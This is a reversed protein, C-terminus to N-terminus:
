RRRKVTRKVRKTVRPKVRRASLRKAVTPKRAPTKHEGNNTSKGQLAANDELTLSVIFERLLEAAHAVDDLQLTEVSTHMYRLPIEVLGTPIGEGAVQMMWANTQTDGGYVTLQHPIAERTAAQQLKEFVFPHVNAGRAICPGGGLISLEESTLNPQQAHTVDLCVAINPRIKFASTSAGLYVPGDEENVNAVVYVDWAHKVNQLQRMVELLAVLSSRDDFAKGAYFNNQLPVVARDPTIFDGISVLERVRADSLGVDIFLEQLPIASKRQDPPIVHPPRMGIVGQLTKRGHVLVNQSPLVRADISGIEDFRIFGDEIGTVILGIEDMHAEIMVRPAPNNHVGRVKAARKIGIVCGLSTIEIDDVFKKIERVFLTRVDDEYGSTGHTQSFRTLLEAIGIM